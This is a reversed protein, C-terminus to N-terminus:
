SAGAKDQYELEKQLLRGLCRERHQRRLFEKYGVDNLRLQELTQRNLQEAIALRKEPTLSWERNRRKRQENDIEIKLREDNM